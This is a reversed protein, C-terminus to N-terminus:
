KNIYEELKNFDKHTINRRKYESIEDQILSKFNDTKNPMESIFNKYAKTAKSFNNNFLYAFILNIYNAERDLTDGTSYSMAKKLNVIAESAQGYLIQYWGINNYCSNYDSNTIEDESGYHTIIYIAKKEFSIASDYQNKRNYFSALRFFTTFYDKPHESYRRLSDLQLKNILLKANEYRINFEKDDEGISKFYDAINERSSIWCSLCENSNLYFDGLITVSSDFYHISSDKSGITNYFVGINNLTSAESFKYNDDTPHNRTLIDAYKLAEKLYKITQLSGGKSLNALYFNIEGLSNYTQDDFNSKNVITYDNLAENFFEEALSDNHINRYALGLSSKLYALDSIYISDSQYFSKYTSLSKLYHPISSEYLKISDTARASMYIEDAADKELKALNLQNIFNNKIKNEYIDINKLRSLYAKDYQENDRYYSAFNENLTVFYQIKISDPENSKNLLEEANQLNQLRKSQDKQLRYWNSITTFYYFKYNLYEKSQNDLQFDILTNSKLYYMRASDYYFTASDNFGNNKTQSALDLFIHGVEKNYQISTDLYYTRQFRLAIQYDIVSNKFDGISAYDSAQMVYFERISPAINNNLQNNLSLLSDLVINNSDIAKKSKNLNFRIEALNKNIDYYHTIEFDTKRKRTNLSNLADIFYHRSIQINGRELYKIGLNYNLTIFVSFTDIVKDKISTNLCELGKKYYEVGLTDNYDTYLNGINNYCRAMVIKRYIKNISASSTVLELQKQYYAFALDIKNLDGYAAGYDNYIDAKLSDDKVRNIDIKELVELVDKSRNSRLILFNAYGILYNINSSSYALVRKYYENAKEYELLSEALQAKQYWRGINNQMQREELTDDDENLTRQAQEIKGQKILDFSEQINKSGKGLTSTVYISSSKIILSDNMKRKRISDELLKKQINYNPNLIDNRKLLLNYTQQLLKLQKTNADLATQKFDNSIKDKLGIPVLPIEILKNKPIQFTLDRQDLPELNKASIYLTVLDDYKLKKLEFKFSGDLQSYKQIKEEDTRINIQVKGIGHSNNDVIKGSIICQSFSSYHINFCLFFLALFHKNM